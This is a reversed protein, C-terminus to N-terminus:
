ALSDGGEPVQSLLNCICPLFTFEGPEILVRARAIGKGRGTLEKAQALPNRVDVIVFVPFRPFPACDTSIPLETRTGDAAPHKTAALEVITIDLFDLPATTFLGHGRRNATNDM